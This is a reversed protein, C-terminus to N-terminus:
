SKRPPRLLLHPRDSPPIGYVPEFLIQSVAFAISAGIEGPLTAVATATLAPRHDHTFDTPEDEDGSM